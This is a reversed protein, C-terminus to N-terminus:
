QFIVGISWYFIYNGFGGYFYVVVWGDMVGNCSVLEVVIIFAQLVFYNFEMCFYVMGNGGFYSGEVLM